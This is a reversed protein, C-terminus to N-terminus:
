PSAKGSRGAKKPPTWVVFLLEALNRMSVEGSGFRGGATADQRDREAAYERLEDDLVAALGEATGGVRDLELVRSSWFRKEDPNDNLYRLLAEEYRNLSM